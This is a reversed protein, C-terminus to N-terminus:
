KQLFEESASHMYHIRESISPHQYRFWMVIAAPNVETLSSKALAQFASIAADEDQKYAIASLDARKEISRSIANNIPSTLFSFLYFLLFLLPLTHLTGWRQKFERHSAQALITRYLVAILWFLFFSGAISAAVGLYLDRYRYHAIEHAMIFVIESEDLRELVTDWIVIRASQGFGTVYANMANTKTSMNVQYIHETPINADGALQELKLRLSDDEIRTFTNTLPDIWLPKIVIFVVTFPITLTWAIIWWRKPFRKILWIAVAIVVWTTVFELGGQVFIDWLWGSISQVSIGYSLSIQYALFHIPLFLFWFSVSLLLAFIGAHIFAFRSVRMAWREFTRALQSRYLFYFFLLQLSVSLFFLANRLFSSQKTKAYEEATLFSLPDMPTGQLSDPIAAFFHIL